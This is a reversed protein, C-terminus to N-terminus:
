CGASENEDPLVVAKVKSADAILLLDVLTILDQTNSAQSLIRRCFCGFYTRCYNIGDYTNGKVM